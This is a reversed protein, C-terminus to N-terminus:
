ASGARGRDSRCRGAACQTRTRVVVGMDIRQGDFNCGIAQKSQPRAHLRGTGRGTARNRGGAVTASRGGIGGDSTTGSRWSSANGSSRSSPSVGVPHPAPLNGKQRAVVRMSAGRIRDAAPPMPRRTPLAPRFRLRPCWRYTPPFSRRGHAGVGLGPRGCGGLLRAGHMGRRRFCGDPDQGTGAEAPFYRDVLILKGHPPHANLHRTTRLSPLPNLSTGTSPACGGLM